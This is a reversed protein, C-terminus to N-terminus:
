CKTAFNILNKRRELFQRYTKPTSMNRKEERRSEKQWFIKGTPRERRQDRHTHGSKTLGRRFTSISVSLKEKQRLDNNKRRKKTKLHLMYLNKKIKTM